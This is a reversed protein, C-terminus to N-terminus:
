GGHLVLTRMEDTERGGDAGLVSMVVNNLSDIRAAACLLVDELDSGGIAHDAERKLMNLISTIQYTAKLAVNARESDIQVTSTDEIEAM